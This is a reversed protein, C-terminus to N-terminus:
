NGQATSGNANDAVIAGTQSDRKMNVTTVESGSRIKLSGEVVVKDGAKIGDTVLWQNDVTREVTLIRSEIVNDANVVYAIPNGKVDRSVGQQPVLLAANHTLEHILGRVFMGPLLLNDPNPFEARLTVSGTSEDVSVERAKLTGQDQYKTGDELLLAVKNSGKEVDDLALFTRQKLQDLSTQALDVFIPDLSRVTTMVTAQSGTVLAGVTVQSIGIRGDIPSRIKTYDLNIKASELAAESGKQKATAELFAVQADDLDQQSVNNQKRLQTYREYKLQASKLSANASELDAQAQKYSSIYTSDDLEYLLDGTKVDQGEEFFRKKVIGGVQPRIEAVLSSTTRGPLETILDIKQPEITVIGVQVKPASPASPAAASQPAEEQCGALLLVLLVSSAYKFRSLM